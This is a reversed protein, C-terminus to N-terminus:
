LGKATRTSAVYEALMERFGLQYDTMHIQDLVTRDLVASLNYGRSFQQVRARTLMALRGKRIRRPIASAVTAGIQAAWLPVSGARPLELTDAIFDFVMRLTTVQPSALIHIGDYGRTLRRTLSSVIFQGIDDAHILPLRASGNDILRLTGAELFQLPRRWVAFNGPGYVYALRVVMLEGSYASRLSFLLREAEVKSSLYPDEPASVYQLLESPGITRSVHDVVSITSMSIFYKTQRAIAERMVTATGVANVEHFASPASDSSDPLLGACHIVADIGDFARTVCRQDQVYGVHVHEKPLALRRCDDNPRVLGHVEYGRISLM